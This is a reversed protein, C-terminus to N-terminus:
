SNQKLDLLLQEVHSESEQRDAIALDLCQQLMSLQNTHSKREQNLKEKLEKKLTDIDDFYSQKTDNCLENAQDLELQLDGLRYEMEEKNAVELDCRQQLISIDKRAANLAGGM